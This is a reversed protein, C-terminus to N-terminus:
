TAHKVENDRTNYGLEFGKEFAFNFITFYVKEQFDSIHIFESALKAMMNNYLEEKKIDIDRDSM